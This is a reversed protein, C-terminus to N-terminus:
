ALDFPPVAEGGLQQLEKETFDSQGESNDIIPDSHTSAPSQSASFFTSSYPPISTPSPTSSYPSLQPQYIHNPLTHMPPQQNFVPPANYSYASMGMEGQEGFLDYEDKDKRKSQISRLLNVAENM